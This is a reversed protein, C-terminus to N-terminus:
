NKVSIAPLDLILDFYWVVRFPGSEYNQCKQGMKSMKVLDVNSDRVFRLTGVLFGSIVVRQVGQHVKNPIRVHIEALIM